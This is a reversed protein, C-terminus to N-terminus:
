GGGVHYFDGFLEPLAYRSLEVFQGLSAGFELSEHGFGVHEAIRGADGGDRLLVAASDHYFASIGLITM